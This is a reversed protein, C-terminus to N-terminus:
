LNNGTTTNAGIVTIQGDTNGYATCFYVQNYDSNDLEELGRSQNHITLDDYLFCQMIRNYICYVSNYNKLAIGQNANNYVFTGSINSYQVGTCHIGINTCLSIYSDVINFHYCEELYIGNECGTIKVGTIECTESFNFRIGDTACGTIYGGLITINSCPISGYYDCFIGRGGSTEIMNNAMSCDSIGQLLIQAYTTGNVFHNDTISVNEPYNSADRSIVLQEHTNGDFVCSAIKTGDGECQIGIVNNSINCNIFECNLADIAVDIGVSYNDSSVNGIFIVGNAHTVHIGNGTLTGYIVNNSVIGSSSVANDEWWWSILVGAANNGYVINDSMVFNTSGESVIGSGAGTPGDYTYSNNSSINGVVTCSDSKTLSIGAWGSDNTENGIVRANQSKWIAIGQDYVHNSYCGFVLVDDCGDAVAFGGVRIGCMWHNQFTVSSVKIHDCNLLQLCNQLEENSGFDHNDRNGDLAIGQIYVNNCSDLSLVNSEADITSANLKLTGSGLINFGDISSISIGDCYFTGLPIYLTAEGNGSIASSMATITNEIAVTDDIVDTGVAGYDEINFVLQSIALGNIYLNDFYGNLYSYSSSGISYTSDSGPYINQTWQDDIQPDGQIGCGSTVSIVLLVLCTSIVKIFKYMVYRGNNIM